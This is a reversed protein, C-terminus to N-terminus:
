HSQIQNVVDAELEDIQANDSQNYTSVRVYGIKM